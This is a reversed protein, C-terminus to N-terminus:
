GSAGGGEWWDKLWHDSPMEDMPIRILLDCWRCHHDVFRGGSYGRETDSLEHGGLHGCLWRAVWQVWRPEGVLLNWSQPYALRAERTEVDLDPTGRVHRCAVASLVQQKTAMVDFSM